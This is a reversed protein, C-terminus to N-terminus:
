NDYLKLVRLCRKLTAKFAEILFISAYYVNVKMDHDIVSWRELTSVLRKQDSVGGVEYSSVTVDIHIFRCNQKWAQYFFEFDSVINLDERFKKMQLNKRVFVSQHSFQSGKWIAEINGARVFRVKGSLYRIEHNGYIVDFENYNTGNFIKGIVSSDVFWDGANMYIVWEGTVYSLAKNMANYIGGDSESIWYNIKDRYKKIIDVTGDDSGGDIVIYEIKNYKQELVSEITKEIVDVRNFVVTIISVVPRRDDQCDLLSLNNEKIYKNQM